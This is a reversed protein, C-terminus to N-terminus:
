GAKHTPLKAPPIYEERTLTLWLTDRVKPWVVSGETSAPPLNKQTDEVQQGQDRQQGNTLGAKHYIENRAVANPECSQKMKSDVFNDSQVQLTSDWSHNIGSLLGCDRKEKWGSGMDGGGINEM